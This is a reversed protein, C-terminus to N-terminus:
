VDKMISELYKTEEEPSMLSNECRYDQVLNFEHLSVSDPNQKWKTYAALRKDSFSISESTSFETSFGLKDEVSQINNKNTYWPNILGADFKVIYKKIYTKTKGEPLISYIENLMEASIPMRFKNEKEKSKTNMKNQGGNTHIKMLTYGIKTKIERCLIDPLNNYLIILEKKTFSLRYKPVPKM